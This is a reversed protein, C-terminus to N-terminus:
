CPSVCSSCLVCVGGGGVVGAGVGRRVVYTGAAGGDAMEACCRGPSTTAGRAVRVCGRGAGRRRQVEGGEEDGWGALGVRHVACATCQPRRASWACVCACGGVSRFARAAAARLWDGSGKNQGTEM